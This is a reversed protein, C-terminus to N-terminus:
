DEGLEDFEDMEDMEDLADIQEAVANIKRKQLHKGDVIELGIIYARKIAEELEDMEVDFYPEEDALGGWHMVKVEWGNTSYNIELDFYEQLFKLRSLFEEM